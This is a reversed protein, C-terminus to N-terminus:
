ATWNRAGFREDPVEVEIARHRPHHEVEIGDQTVAVIFTVTTGPRAGLCSFPIQAEVLRGVAATLGECGSAGIQPGQSTELVVSTRGNESRLVVRTGDPKLFNLSIELGQFADGMARVGAVK